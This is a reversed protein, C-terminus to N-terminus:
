CMVDLVKRNKLEVKPFLSIIVYNVLENLSSVLFETWTEELFITTVNTTQKWFNPIHTSTYKESNRWSKKKKLSLYNLLPNAIDSCRIKTTKQKSCLFTWWSWLPPSWHSWPSSGALGLSSCHQSTHTASSALLSQWSKAYGNTQAWPHDARNSWLRLHFWARPLYTFIFLM